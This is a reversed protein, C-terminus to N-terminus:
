PVSAAGGARRPLPAEAGAGPRGVAMAYLGEDGPMWRDLVLGAGEMLRVVTERDYKHSVETRLTEGGRFPVRTGDPLRVVQPRLAELHMEIRHRSDDYFARHQFAELDFDTGLERNLVRLVNRNFRATVGAEDNYARELREVSKGPGPRLDVGLLFRDCPEMAGAIRGLLDAAEGPRFNGITSGLLAFLSPRRLRDPLGDTSGPAGLFDSASMDAVVPHVRIGSYERRLTRAADELYDASVDVPVFLLEAVDSAPAGDGRSGGEGGDGGPDPVGGGNSRLMGDLISRTKRGSGAGLEVLSAPALSALWPQVEGELIQLEARTLYYEPLRTIQEFLESGRRDYFFKPALEKPDRGLGRRVEDLM